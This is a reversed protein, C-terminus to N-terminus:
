KGKWDLNLKNYKRNLISLRLTRKYGDGDTLWFNDSTKHLIWREGTSEHEFLDGDNIDCWRLVSKKRKRKGLNKSLIRFAEQDLTKYYPM